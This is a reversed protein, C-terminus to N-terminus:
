VVMNGWSACVTNMFPNLSTPNFLSILALFLLKGQRIDFYVLSWLKRPQKIIGASLIVSRGLRFDSPLFCAHDSNNM